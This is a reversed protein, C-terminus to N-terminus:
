NALAVRTGGSTADMTLKGADALERLVRHATSKSPAGITEAISAISGNIRGGEGRIRDVVDNPLVSRRRGRPPKEDTLQEPAESPAKTDTAPSSLVSVVILSSGACVEFFIVTAAVLWPAIKDASWDLGLAAAYVALSAAAPDGAGTAPGTQLTATAGAIVHELDRRRDARQAEVKKTSHPAAALTKLESVAAEAQGKTLAYTDAIKSRAAAADGRTASVFGLSSLTAYVLCAAGLGAAVFARGWARQRCASFVCLWSVPQLVAGALSGAAFIAAHIQSAAAGLAIGNLIGQAASTGVAVVAASYGLFRLARSTVSAM